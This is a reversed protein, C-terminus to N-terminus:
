QEFSIEIIEGIPVERRDTFQLVGRVHDIQRFNGIVTRYAGGDKRADSQFYTVSVTPRQELLEELLRLADNLRAIESEDLEIRQETLRRTEEIADDHGTLAAFPAFQAARNRMPMRPHTQPEPHPLDIIDDYNGNM